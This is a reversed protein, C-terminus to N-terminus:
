RLGLSKGVIDLMVENAGGYIRQVRADRWMRAIDYEEMFGYGGHLQVCRDLVSSELETCLFKAAAAEAASLRKATHAAVCRDVYARAASTQAWLEALAFRTGQLAGITTGFAKRETVYDITLRLAREANAVGTVAM